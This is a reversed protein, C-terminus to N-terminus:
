PTDSFRGKYIDTARGVDEHAFRSSATKALLQFFFDGQINNAYRKRM